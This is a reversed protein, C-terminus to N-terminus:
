TLPSSATSPVTRIRDVRPPTRSAATVSPPQLHFYIVSTTAAPGPPENAPEPGQDRAECEKGQSRNPHLGQVGLLVQMQANRMEQSIVPHFTTTIRANM